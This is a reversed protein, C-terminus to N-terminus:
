TEWRGTLDTPLTTTETCSMVLMLCFVFLILGMKHLM